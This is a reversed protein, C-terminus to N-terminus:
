KFTADKLALDVWSADNVNYGFKLFVQVDFSSMLMTAIFCIAYLLFVVISFVVSVKQYDEMSQIMGSSLSQMYPNNRSYFDILTIVHDISGVLSITSLLYFYRRIEQAM